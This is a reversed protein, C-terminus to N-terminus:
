SQGQYLIDGTRPDKHHEAKRVIEAVKFYKKKSIAPVEKIVVLDGNNCEEKEDHAFFCKRKRVYQPIYTM